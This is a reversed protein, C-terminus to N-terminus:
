TLIGMAHLRLQNELHSVLLDEERTKKMLLTAVLILCIKLVRLSFFKKM